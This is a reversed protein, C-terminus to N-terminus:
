HKYEEFGSLVADHLINYIENKKAEKELKPVCLNQIGSLESNQQWVVLSSKMVAM